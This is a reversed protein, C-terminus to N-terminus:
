IRDAPSGSGPAAFDSIEPIATQAGGAGRGAEWDTGSDDLVVVRTVQGGQLEGLPAYGVGAGCVADGAPPPRPFMPPPDLQRTSGAGDGRSTVVIVKKESPRKM